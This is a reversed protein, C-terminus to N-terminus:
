GRCGSRAYAGLAASSRTVFEDFARKQAAPYEFELYHWATGSCALMAKRYFIRNGFFGSVVIWTQGGREYTIHGGQVRMLGAMQAAVPRTAPRAYFVIKSNGDPSVFGRTNSGRPPPVSRWDQPIISHLDDRAPTAAAPAFAGMLMVMCCLMLIRMPHCRVLHRKRDSRALMPVAWHLPAPPTKAWNAVTLPSM